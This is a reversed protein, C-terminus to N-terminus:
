ENNTPAESEYIEAQYLMQYTSCNELLEEHNGIGVIEGENLVIIKDAMKAANLRHSIFIGIKGRSREFFKDFIERESVTDLAANPEDLIYVDADRFYARALAIKQWQGQSLQRGDEFWNGLQMNLEYDENQRLFDLQLKDLIEKIKDDNHIEAVDGFGINERLSLEYKVFDQFLVSIKSRYNKIDLDNLSIGDILIEGENTEYLGLLVKILTSKGSGNPGVLAIKEGKNLNININKLTHGKNKYAFSLHKININSIGHKVKISSNTAKKKNCYNLFDFLMEMYLSSNYITYINAMISQSNTQVLGVSRIYSMVNGVLIEGVYASMIAASIILFSIGQMVVEYILNFKTKKKLININQGIFIDSLKKYNALIYNKIELVSIEKFSFDHTLLYSLYWTKREEKARNWITEFEQQGIKLFYLLSIIPVILLVASIYPNWAILLLASSIMTIAATLLSIIALFIQFPRYAIEGTIKEIKDYMESTEFDELALDTCKEMVMYNLRYQLLFQFKGEIFGKLESLMAGTFSALIYLAFIRMTSSYFSDMRVLSNILEQSLILTIVPLIGTFISLLITLFFAKRDIRLLIAITKPIQKLSVIIDKIKIIEKEM